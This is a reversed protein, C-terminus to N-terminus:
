NDTPLAQLTSNQKLLNAPTGTTHQGFRLTLNGAAGVQVTGAIRVHFYHGNLRDSSAVDFTQSLSDLRESGLITGVSAPSTLILSTMTADAIFDDVMVDGGDFDIRVGNNTEVYLEAEITYATDALLPVSLDSVVQPTTSLENAAFDATLRQLM